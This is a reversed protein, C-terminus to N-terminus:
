ALALVAYEGFKAATIAHKAFAYERDSALPHVVGIAVWALFAAALLWLPLSRRLSGAGSRAVSVAVAAAVVLLVVDSLLVDVDATGSGLTFGPQYDVHFLVLPM